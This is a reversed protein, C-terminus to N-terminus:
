FFTMNQQTYNPCPTSILKICLSTHVEAPGIPVARVFKKSVM